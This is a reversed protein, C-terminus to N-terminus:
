QFAGLATLAVCSAVNQSGLSRLKGPMASLVDGVLQAPTAAPLQVYGASALAWGDTAQELSLWQAQPGVLRREAARQLLQECQGETLRLALRQWRRIVLPDAWTDEITRRAATSDQAAGAELHRALLTHMFVQFAQRAESTPMMAALAVLRRAYGDRTFQLCLMVQLAQVPNLVRLRNPPLVSLPLLAAIAHPLPTVFSTLVALRSWQQADLGDRRKAVGGAAESLEHAVAWQAQWDLSARAQCAQASLMALNGAAFAASRNIRDVRGDIGTETARTLPERTVPCHSVALQQLHCPTLQLAEFVVGQMWAQLRLQLWLRVRPTAPLTRIGFVARGARWAQYVPSEAQLHEVPPTLHHRAFDRGIDSAIPDGSVAHTAPSPLKAIPTAAPTSPVDFPLAVQAM